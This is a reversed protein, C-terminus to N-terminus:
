LLGLRDFYLGNYQCTVSAPRAAYLLLLRSAVSFIIDNFSMIATSVLKAQVPLLFRSCEHRQVLRAVIHDVKVVLLQKAGISVVQNNITVIVSVSSLLKLDVEDLAM